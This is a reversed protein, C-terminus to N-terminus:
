VYIHAFGDPVSPIGGPAEGEAYATMLGKTSSGAALEGETASPGLAVGGGVGTAVNAVVIGQSVIRVRDGQSYGDDHNYGVVGVVETDNTDDATVLEDSANLAVADGASLPEAATRTETIIGDDKHSQGPELSM